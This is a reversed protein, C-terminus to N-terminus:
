PGMGFRKLRRVPFLYQQARKVITKTHKSWTLKHHHPCWPVQFEVREVEAGGINIPAQEARRKRYDVILEKTKSVNLSLNNDQSRRGIPQKM